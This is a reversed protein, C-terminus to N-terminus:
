NGSCAYAVSLNYAALPYYTGVNHKGACVMRANYTKGGALSGTKSACHKFSDAEATPELGLDEAVSLTPGVSLFIKPSTLDVVGSFAGCCGTVTVECSSSAPLAVAGQVEGNTVSNLTDSLIVTGSLAQDGQVTINQTGGYQQQYPDQVAPVKVFVGMLFFVLLSVVVAVVAMPLLTDIKFDM